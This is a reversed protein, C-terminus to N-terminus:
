GAVPKSNALAQLLREGEGPGGREWLRMDHMAVGSGGEGGPALLRWRKARACGRPPGAGDTATVRGRDERAQAGGHSEATAAPGAAM